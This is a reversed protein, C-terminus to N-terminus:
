AHKVSHRKLGLESKAKFGCDTCINIEGETSTVLEVKGEALLQEVDTADMIFGPKADPFEVPKLEPDLIRVKTM